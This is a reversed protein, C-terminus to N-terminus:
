AALVQRITGNIKQAASRAACNVREARQPAFAIRVRVLQNERWFQQAAEITEFDFARAVDSTWAIGSRFFRRTELSQLLIRITM